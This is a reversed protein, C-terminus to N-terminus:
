KDNKNQFQYTPDEGKDRLFSVGRWLPSVTRLCEVRGGLISSILTVIIRASLIYRWIDSACTILRYRWMGLLALNVVQLDCVGLGVLKKPKCVDPQIVWSINSDGKDGGWLFIRQIKVTKKWVKIPRKLFSLFFIHIVNLFFSLLIMRGGLPVYWHRWSHLQRSILSVISEWTSSLWPNEWILLSLYKFLLSKLQCHLFECALDLLTPDFIVKILTSKSINVRLVSVLEFGQLIAKISQLNQISADDLIIMDDVYQLHSVM